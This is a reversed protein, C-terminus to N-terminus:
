AHLWVQWRKGSDEKHWTEDPAEFGGAGIKMLLKDDISAAYLENEAKLIKM